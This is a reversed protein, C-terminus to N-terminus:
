EAGTVHREDPANIGLAIPGFTSYRAAEFVPSRELMSLGHGGYEAPGHPAFVGAARARAQLDRRVDEGHPGRLDGDRRQEVPLVEGRVFRRTRAALDASPATTLETATM